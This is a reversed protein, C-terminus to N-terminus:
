YSGANDTSFSKVTGEGQAFLSQEQQNLLNRKRAASASNGIFEDTADNATYTQGFRAAINGEGGQLVGAAQSAGSAAQAASVGQDAYQEAKGRSLGVNNRAAAAGIDVSNAQRDLLAQGKTPDLFYAALHSDDVGYYQHLLARSEPSTSQAYKFAYSARTAFEQGSIGSGILKSFDDPSDYFGKPLGYAAAAEQYSKETSLYEPISLVSIGGQRRLENGAFRTKYESTNQLMYSATAGDYGARSYELIKPALSKLGYSDFLDELAQFANRTPGALLTPDIGNTAM